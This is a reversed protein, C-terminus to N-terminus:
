KTEQTEEPINKESTTPNDVKKWKQIPCQAGPIKSKAKMFCGCLTCRDEKLHPCAKCIAFRKDGLDKGVLKFGSKAWVWMTKFFSEVKLAFSNKYLNQIEERLSNSRNVWSKTNQQCQQLARTPANVNKYKQLETLIKDHEAVLKLYREEWTDM